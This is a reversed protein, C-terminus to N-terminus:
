EIPFFIATQWKEPNPETTPDTIYSEWPPGIVVVKNKRMWENIGFYTEPLREYPGYHIATVVNGSKIKDLKIRNNDITISDNIPIGFEIDVISDSWFHYIVLPVSISEFKQQSMYQNIESYNKGYINNMAIPSITDRISLFWQNKEIK